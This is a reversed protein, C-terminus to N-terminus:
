SSFHPPWCLWSHKQRRRMQRWSVAWLSNVHPRQAGVQGSGGGSQLWPEEKGQSNTCPGAGYPLIYCLVMCGITTPCSVAWLVQMVTGCHLSGEPLQFHPLASHMVPPHWGAHISCCLPCTGADLCVPCAAKLAQPGQQHQWQQTCDMPCVAVSTKSTSVARAYTMRPPPTQLQTLLFRRTKIYQMGLLCSWLRLQALVVTVGSQVLKSLSLNLIYIESISDDGVQKRNNQANRTVTYM